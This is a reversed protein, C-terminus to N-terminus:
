GHRRRVAEGPRVEVLRMLKRRKLWEAMDVRKDEAVDSLLVDAHERWLKEAECKSTVVDGWDDRATWKTEFQVWITVRRM